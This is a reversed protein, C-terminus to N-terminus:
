VWMSFEFMLQIKSASRRERARCRAIEMLRIRELALTSEIDDAERQWAITAIQFNRRDLEDVHHICRDTVGPWFDNSVGVKKCRARCRKGTTTTGTCQCGSDMWALFLEETENSDLAIWDIDDVESM